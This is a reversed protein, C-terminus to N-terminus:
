SFLQEEAYKTALKLVLDFAFDGGKEKIKKVIRDWRKGRTNDLFEHGQWTLRYPLIDYLRGQETKTPEGNILGAEYMIQMHYDVLRKEYGDILVPDEYSWDQKEEFHLLIERVLQIDRKM